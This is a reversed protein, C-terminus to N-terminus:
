RKPSPAAPHHLTSNVPAFVVDDHITNRRKVRLSVESGENAKREIAQRWKMTPDAGLRWSESLTVNAMAAGLLLCGAPSDISQVASLHITDSEMFCIRMRGPGLMIVWVHHADPHCQPHYNTAEILNEIVGPSYPADVQSGLCVAVGLVSSSSTGAGIEFSVVGDIVKGTSVIGIHRGNHLSSCVANGGRMLTDIASVCAKAEAAAQKRLDANEPQMRNRLHREVDAAPAQDTPLSFMQGRVDVSFTGAEVEM